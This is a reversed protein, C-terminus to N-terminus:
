QAVIKEANGAVTKFVKGRPKGTAVNIQTITDGQKDYKSCPNNPSQKWDTCMTNDKVSWTGHWVGGNARRYLATGDVAYFIVGQGAGGTSAETLEMYVSKGSVLEKIEAGTLEAATASGILCVSGIVAFGARVINSRLM